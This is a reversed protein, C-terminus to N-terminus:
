SDAIEEDDYNMGTEVRGALEALQDIGHSGDYHIQYGIPNDDGIHLFTSAIPVVLM